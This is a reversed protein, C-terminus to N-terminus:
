RPPYPEIDALLAACALDTQIQATGDRKMQAVRQPHVGLADAAAKDSAAKGASKMDALWQNFQDPTM